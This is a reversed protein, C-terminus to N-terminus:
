LSTSWSPATACRMAPLPTGPVGRPRFDVTRRAGCRRRPTTPAPARAILAPRGPATWNSDLSHVGRTDVRTVQAPRPSPGAAGRLGAHQAREAPDGSHPPDVPHRRHHVRAGSLDGGRVRRGRLVAPHVDPGARGGRFRLPTSSSRRRRRAMSGVTVVPVTDTAEADDLLGRGDRAPRIRRRVVPRFRTASRPSTSESQSGTSCAATTARTVVADGGRSHEAGPRDSQRVQTRCCTIDRVALTTGGAQASRRSPATAALVAATTRSRPRTQAPRPPWRAIMGHKHPVFFVGRHGRRLAYVRVPPPGPETLQQVPDTAPESPMFRTPM